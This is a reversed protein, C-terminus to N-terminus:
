QAGRGPGSDRVRLSVFFGSSLPLDVAVAASVGTGGVASNQSFQVLVQNKLQNGIGSGQAGTTQSNGAGVTFYPISIDWSGGSVGNVGTSGIGGSVGPLVAGGVAMVQVSDLRVWDDQLLLSYLGTAIRQVGAVGAGYLGWTGSFTGVWGTPVGQTAQSPLLGWYTGSNGAISGGSPIAVVSNPLGGTGVSVFGEINTMKDKLDVGFQYGYRNAM